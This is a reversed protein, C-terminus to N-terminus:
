ASASLGRRRGIALYWCIGLVFRYHQLLSQRPTAVVTTVLLIATHIRSQRLLSESFYGALIGFLANKFAIRHRRPFEQCFTNFLATSRRAKQLPALPAWVGGDHLRYCSLVSNIVGADGHQAALLYLARDLCYQRFIWDPLEVASRRMMVSSAHFTFGRILDEFGLRFVGAQPGIEDPTTDGLGQTEREDIICTRGGCFALSPDNTLLEVQKEAKRSDTWWDDSELFAVFDGRASSLVRQFNRHFGIAGSESHFVRVSGPYARAIDDVIKDSGDSSGDEGILLEMRPWLSQSTVSDIAKRLYQAHNHTLMLISVIPTASSRVEPPLLILKGPM